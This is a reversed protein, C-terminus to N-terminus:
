RRLMHNPQPHGLFQACILQCPVDSVLAAIQQHTLELTTEQRIDAKCFPCNKVHLWSMRLPRPPTRPFSAHPHGHLQTPRHRTCSADHLRHTAHGPGNEEDNDEDKCGLCDNPVIVTTTMQNRRRKWPREDDNDSYRQCYENLRDDDHDDGDDLRASGRISM